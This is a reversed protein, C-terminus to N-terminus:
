RGTQRRAHMWSASAKASEFPDSIDPRDVEVILWGGFDSPLAALMAELDLEGLGPEVWLGKMVTQQYTLGEARGREAVSLRCDKIHVAAVRERYDEILAQVNAGAWALHGTDPGLGLLAGDVSDLVTRAEEEVEVDTGVHPHLAARVGEARMAEAVAVLAETLRELRADDPDHGRAPRVVRPADKSMGAGVLIDRLGLEAHTRAAAAAQEVLDRRESEAYERIVFYGPAPRLGTERLLADYQEVMWGAPVDAFAGEFGAEKIQSALARPDLKRSFDLWGDDTALWQIPNLAFPAAQNTM